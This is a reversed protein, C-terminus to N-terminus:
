MNKVPVILQRSVTIIYNNMVGNAAVVNITITTTRSAFLAITRPIGSGALEGNVNVTGYEPGTPTIIVSTAGNSVSVSYNTTTPSFAPSLTWNSVTLGALNANSSYSVLAKAVLVYYKKITVGDTATVVITFLTFPSNKSLVNGGVPSGSTAPIGNVSLTAHPDSATPTFMFFYNDGTLVSVNYNTVASSFVPTLTGQFTTLSALNANNSLRNPKGLAPLISTFCFFGVLLLLIPRDNFIVKCVVRNLSSLLTKM